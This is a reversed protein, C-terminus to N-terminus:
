IRPLYVFTGYIWNFGPQMLIPNRKKSHNGEQAKNLTLIYMLKKLDWDIPCYYQFVIFLLFFERFIIKRNKIAISRSKLTLSLLFTWGFLVIKWFHQWNIARYNDLRSLGKFRALLSETAEIHSQFWFTWWFILNIELDLNNWLFGCM